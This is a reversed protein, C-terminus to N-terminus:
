LWRRVSSKYALYEAGFKGELYREERGIVIHILAVSVVLTALIWLSNVWIAIGLQLLTFALYIPNRSFRYPGMRVIATTPRNGPVPTGAARFKAGSYFFLVLAAVVVMSGLATSVGDPVFRRPWVFGLIWGTAIAALYVLPPRVVGRNAVEPTTARKPALTRVFTGILSAISRRGPLSSFRFLSM